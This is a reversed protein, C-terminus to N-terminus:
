LCVWEGLSCKSWLLEASSLLRVLNKDSVRCKITMECADPWFRGDGM